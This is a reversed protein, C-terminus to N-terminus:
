GWTESRFGSPKEPQPHPNPGRTYTRQEQDLVAGEWGMGWSYGECNHSVRPSSIDPRVSFAVGDWINEGCEGWAGATCGDKDMM